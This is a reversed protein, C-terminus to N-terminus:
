PRAVFIMRSSHRDFSAKEYDGYIQVDGFGSTTLMAAIERPSYLKLRASTSYQRTKAGDLEFCFRFGVELIDADLAQSHWRTLLQGDATRKQWDRMWEGNAAKELFYEPAAPDSHRSHRSFTALDLFLCGNKGLHRRFATLAAFADAETELLQFSERPCVVLDFEDGLDISRMDGVLLEVASSCLSSSVRERVRRIMAPERDVAVLRRSLHALPLTLRGSGCPVELIHCGVQSILDSVFDIEQVEEFELQYIESREQYGNMAM